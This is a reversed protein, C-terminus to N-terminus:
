DFTLPMCDIAEVDTAGTTKAFNLVFTETVTPKYVSYLSDDGDDGTTIWMGGGADFGLGEADLETKWVDRQSDVIRVGSEDERDTLVAYLEGTDPDWGIDTAEYLDITTPNRPAPKVEEGDSRFGKIVGGEDIAYLVDNTLDDDDTYAWTLGNVDRAFDLDITTVRRTRGSEPDITVLRQNIGDWAWIPEPAGPRIAMSEVNRTELGRLGGVVTARADGTADDIRLFTDRVYDIPQQDLARDAIAYCTVVAQEPVEEAM